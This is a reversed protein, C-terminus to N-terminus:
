IVVSGATDACPLPAPGDHDTVDMVRHARRSGAGRSAAPFREDGANLAARLRGAHDKYVLFQVTKGGTQFSYFHDQGDSVEADPISVVGAAAYVQRAVEANGPMAGAHAHRLSSFVLLALAVLALIVVAHGPGTIPVPAPAAIARPRSSRRNM